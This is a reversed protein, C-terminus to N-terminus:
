KKKNNQQFYYFFYMFFKSKKKENCHFYLAPKYKIRKKIKVVVVM